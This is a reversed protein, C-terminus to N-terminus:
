RRSRTAASATSDAIRRSRPAPRFPPRSGPRSGISEPEPDWASTTPGSMLVTPLGAADIPRGFMFGQVYRGGLGELRILQEPDEVGEIIVEVDLMEALTLITRVMAVSAPDAALSIAFSRDVKLVDIDLDRLYALSSFGTGFHDIAIRVGLGKMKQILERDGSAASETVELQIRGPDTGSRDLIGALTPLFDSEELHRPSLNVSLVPPDELGARTTVEAVEYCATALVWRDLDAILSSREAVPLFVAPFVRGFEPHEWRVLAEVGTFRRGTVDVIPQYELFLQNGAIADRLDEEIRQGLHIPERELEKSYMHRQLGGRRKAEYMAMDARRVLEEPERADDGTMAIGVSAGISIEEGGFVFPLGIQSLIRAAVCMAEAPNAASELLVGFEDGGIRGVTDGARAVGVLRQAVERLVDDGVAHGARDNVPKFRDLDMYLLAIESSGRRTRAVAHELRDNFLARNPLGTLFDRLARDELERESRKQETIDRLLAWAGVVRRRGNDPGCFVRADVHGGPNGIGLEVTPRGGEMAEKLAATARQRSWGTVFDLFPRGAVSEGPAGVMEEFCRNGRMIIGDRDIMVIAELNMDFQAELPSSDSRRVARWWAILLVVVLVLTVAGAVSHLLLPPVAVAILGESPM